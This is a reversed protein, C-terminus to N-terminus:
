QVTNLRHHSTWWKREQHQSASHCWRSTSKRRVVTCVFCSITLVLAKLFYTSFHSRNGSAQNTWGNRDLQWLRGSLWIRSRRTRNFHVQSIMVAKYRSDWLISPLSDSDNIEYTFNLTVSLTELIDPLYGRAQVVKGTTSDRNLYVVPNGQFNM